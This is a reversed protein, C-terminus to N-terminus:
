DAADVNDDNAFELVAPAALALPEIALGLRTLRDLIKARLEPETLNINATVLGGSVEVGRSERWTKPFRAAMLRSWVKDNFDRGKHMGQIGVREWFIESLDQATEVADAFEPHVLCWESLTCRNVGLETAIEAKSAGNVGMAIVKEIM